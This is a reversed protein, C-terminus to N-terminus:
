HKDHDHDRDPHGHRWTWYQKQDDKDLKQFDRHPDRHTEVVWQQYYVREHNDWDHYDSYYPDYDRRYHQHEACGITVVPLLLAAALLLLGCHRVYSM